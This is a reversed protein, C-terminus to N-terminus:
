ELELNYRYIMKMIDLAGVSCAKGFLSNLNVYLRFSETHETLLYELFPLNCDYTIRDALRVLDFSKPFAVIHQKFFDLSGFTICLSTALTDLKVDNIRKILISYRKFDGLAILQQLAQQIDRHTSDLHLTPVFPKSDIADLADFLTLNRHQIAACMPFVAACQNTRVLYKMFYNATPSQPHCFNSFSHSTNEYFSPTCGAEILMMSIIDVTHCFPTYHIDTSFKAVTLTELHHALMYKALSMDFIIRGPWDHIEEFTIVDLHMLHDFVEPQFSTYIRKLRHQKLSPDVDMIVHLQDITTYLNILSSFYDTQSRQTSSQLGQIVLLLVSRDTVGMRIVGKATMTHLADQNSERAYNSSLLPPYTNALEYALLLNYLPRYLYSDKPINRMTEIVKNQADIYLTQDTTVQFILPILPTIKDFYIQSTDWALVEKVNDTGNFHNMRTILENPISKVLVSGTMLFAVNYIFNLRLSLSAVHLHSKILDYDLSCMIDESDICQQQHQSSSSDLVTSTTTQTKRSCFYDLTPLSHGQSQRRIIMASSIKCSEYTVDLYKVLELSGSKMANYMAEKTIPITDQCHRLSVILKLVEVSGSRCSLDVSTPTIFHLRYLTVLKEILGIDRTKFIKKLPITAMAIEGQIQIFLGKDLKDHLLSKYGNGLMWGISTVQDYKLIYPLRNKPTKARVKTTNTTSMVYMMSIEHIYNVIKKWIYRNGIVNNFSKDNNNNCIIITKTKTTSTQLDNDDNLRSQIYKLLQHNYEDFKKSEENNNNNDVEEEDQKHNNNNQKPSSSSYYSSLLSKIYNM